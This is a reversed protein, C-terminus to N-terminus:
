IPAPWCASACVRTLSSIEILVEDTSDDDAALELALCIAPSPLPPIGRGCVGRLLELDIGPDM